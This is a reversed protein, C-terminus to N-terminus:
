IDVPFSVPLDLSIEESPDFTDPSPPAERDEVPEPQDDARPEEAPEETEAPTAADEEQAGLPPAALVFCCAITLTFAIFTRM